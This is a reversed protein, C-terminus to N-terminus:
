LRDKCWNINRKVVKAPVGALITNAEEFSKTVVAGTGIVTNQPIVVGKNILVRYGIWVHDGIIVDAASNIRKGSLDVVSHSDGTRLVIESSCLCDNGILISKGETCALHIKGCLNTGNGITIRNNHDEIYINGHNIYTDKGIEVVNNNGRICITTNRIIGGKHFIITNKGYSKIKCNYLLKGKNVVKTKRTRFSNNFPLVNIIKYCKLIIKKLVIKM